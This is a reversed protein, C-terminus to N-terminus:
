RQSHLSRWYAYEVERIKLKEIVFAGNDELEDRFDLEEDLEEIEHECRDCQAQSEKVLRDEAIRLKREILRISVDLSTLKESFSLCESLATKMRGIERKVESFVDCAFLGSLSISYMSDAKAKVTIEYLGSEIVENPEYRLVIRGMQKSTSSINEEPHVHGSELMTVRIPDNKFQIPEEWNSLHKLVVKLKGPIYETGEFDGRFIITIAISYLKVTNCSQLYFYHHNISGEKLSQTPVEYLSTSAVQKSAILLCSREVEKSSPLEAISSVLVCNKSTLTRDFSELTSESELRAVNKEIDAAKPCYEDVYNRVDAHDELDITTHFYDRERKETCRKLIKNFSFRTLKTEDILNNDCEHEEMLNTSITM